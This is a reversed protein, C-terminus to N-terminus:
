PVRIAATTSRKLLVHKCRSSTFGEISSASQHMETGCKCISIHAFLACISQGASRVALYKCVKRNYDLRNFYLTCRKAVSEPSYRCKLHLNGTRLSKAESLTTSRWGLIGSQKSRNVTATRVSYLILYYYFELRNMGTQHKSQFEYFASCSALQFDSSRSTFVSYIHGRVCQLDELPSNQLLVVEATKLIRCWYAIFPLSFFFCADQQISVRRSLSVKILLM